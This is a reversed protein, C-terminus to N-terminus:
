EPFRRRLGDLEEVLAAGFRRLLEGRVADYLISGQGRCVLEEAVEFSPRLLGREWTAPFLWCVQPKIDHYDRGNEVAYTHLACGKGKARRFVCKGDVRQARVYTGSEYDPDELVEKAFWEEPPSAVYPAIEARLEWIRAREVSSVDCGYQCCADRCFDCSMCKAYYRLLFIRTDVRRLAPHATLPLYM